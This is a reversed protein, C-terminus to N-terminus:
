FKCVSHEGVIEGVSLCVKITVEIEGGVDAPFGPWVDCRTQVVEASSPWTGCHEDVLAGPWAEEIPSIPPTVEWGETASRGLWVTNNSAECAKWEAERAITEVLGPCSDDWETDFDDTVLHVWELLSSVIPITSTNVSYSIISGYWVSRLAICPWVVYLVAVPAFSCIPMM